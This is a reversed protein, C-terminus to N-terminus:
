KLEKELKEIISRVKYDRQEAYSDDWHNSHLGKYDPHYIERIQNITTLKAQRRVETTTM